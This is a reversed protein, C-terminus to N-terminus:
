EHPAPKKLFILPCEKKRSIIANFTKSLLSYLFIISHMISEEETGFQAASAKACTRGKYYNFHQFSIIGQYVTTVISQRTNKWDKNYIVVM